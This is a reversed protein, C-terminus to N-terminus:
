PADLALAHQAPADSLLDQWYALQGDWAGQALAAQQWAAFDLYQRQPEPLDASEGRVLAAYITLFEDFLVRISQGDAAIHHLNLLLVAQGDHLGI